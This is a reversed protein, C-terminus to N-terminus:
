KTPAAAAPEARKGNPANPAPPTPDSLIITYLDSILTLLSLAQQKTM